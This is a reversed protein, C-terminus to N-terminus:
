RVMRGSLIVHGNSTVILKDGQNVKGSDKGDVSLRGNNISVRLTPRLGLWTSSAFSLETPSIAFDSSQLLGSSMTYEVGFAQGTTTTEASLLASILAIALM